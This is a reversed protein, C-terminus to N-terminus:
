TERSQLQMLNQVGAADGMGDIRIAHELYEASQTNGSKGRARILGKRYFGNITQRLLLRKERATTGKLLFPNEANVLIHMLMKYLELEKAYLYTNGGNGFSWCLRVFAGWATPEDKVRFFEERSIWTERAKDIDFTGELLGKFLLYVGTNIENYHITEWKRGHFLDVRKAEAYAALTIAGGGGFLDYLHTAPPLVGIIDKAIARKSGQYPIM